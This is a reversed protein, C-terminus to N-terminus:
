FIFNIFFISLSIQPVTKFELGRKRGKEEKEKEDVDRKGRAWVLELRELVQEFIGPVTPAFNAIKESIKEYIGFLRLEECAM